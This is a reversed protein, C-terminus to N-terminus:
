TPLSHKWRQIADLVLRGLLPAGQAIDALRAYGYGIILGRADRRELCYASLPRVTLGNDAIKCGAAELDQMQSTDKDTAYTTYGKQAFALATAKGIGNAAGTILVVKKTQAFSNSAMQTGCFMLAVIKFYKNM